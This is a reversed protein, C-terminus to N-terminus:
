FWTSLRPPVATRFLRDLAAADGTIRGALALGRALDHGLYVSGLTSVPLIVDPADETAEVRGVGDTVTLRYRGNALGLDDSVDLVLSGDREYGRAELAAPLDLIRVWLHDEVATVRAGRVDSVLAPLPEDVGRTWARVEAVLDLELLFRWLAVLAEDTAAALYEVEVKHRTFDDEGKVTYSVFGQPEGDASDYRVLRFREADPTGKLPGILRDALYPSLGIEGPRSAMVADLVRYGTERYSEPDTFSLRGGTQPGAWRVRKTDIRWESAFTAPGFGWRGYIVSESVTLIALPVGQAAATRLESGLLARAVGRRRHTPAVTVSSIAWADVRAGGPVTLPAVWSNVTGVPTPSPIADDYVATTRRDRLYGRAETLVEEKPAPSHFGRFDARIWETFAADDSTDVLALRLGSGTLASAAQEDIPARDVSAAHEDSAAQEDIPASSSPTNQEM